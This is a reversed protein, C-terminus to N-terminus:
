VRGLCRLDRAENPTQPNLKERKKQSEDREAQPGELKNQRQIDM